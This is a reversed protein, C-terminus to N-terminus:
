TPTVKLAWLGYGPSYIYRDRIHAKWDRGFAAQPSTSGTHAVLEATRVGLRGQVHAEYLLRVIKVRAAGVITWPDLEPLHLVASAGNDEFEAGEAAEAQTRGEIWCRDLRGSDFRGDDADFLGRAELLLHKGLFGLPRSGPTLILCPARHGRDRLSRDVKDLVAPDGAREWLYIPREEGGVRAAGLAYLGHGRDEPRGLLTPLDLSKVVQERVFDRNVTWRLFPDLSKQELMQDDGLTISATGASVDPMVDAEVPGIEDDEVLVTAAITRQRLFGNRTLRSIDSGIERLEDYGIDDRAHDLLALLSPLMEVVEERKPESFTTVVGLEHLLAFGIRRKDSDTESQLTSRNQNTIRFRLSQHAQDPLSIRLFLEIDCLFPRGYRTALGVLMDRAIADIPEGALASVTIKRDYGGLAYRAETVHLESIRDSLAAPIDPRLSKAFPRLDYNRQTLPRESLEEGLVQGAFVSAVAKRDTWDRGCVEIRGIAPRYVLILETAPRYQIRDIRKDAEFTRESALPGGSTVALMVEHDAGESTPLEVVEIRCGGTLDLREAIVTELAEPEIMAADFAVPVQLDHAEYIKRHDRYSRLQMAREVSRFLPPRESFSSAARALPGAIRELDIRCRFDIGDALRLHLADARTNDLRTIRSAEREVPELVDRQLANLAERLAARGTSETEFVHEDLVGAAAVVPKASIVARLLGDPLERLLRTLQPAGTISKVSM